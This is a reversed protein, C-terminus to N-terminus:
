AARSVLREIKQEFDALEQRASDFTQAAIVRGPMLWLSNIARTKGDEFRVDYIGRATIVWTPGACHPCISDQSRNDFIKTESGDYRCVTKYKTGLPLERYCNKCSRFNQWEGLVVGVGFIRHSAADGHRFEHQHLANSM